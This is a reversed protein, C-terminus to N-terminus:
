DKCISIFEALTTDKLKSRLIKRACKDALNQAKESDWVNLRFTSLQRKFIDIRERFPSVLSETVDQLWRNNILEIKQALSATLCAPKVFRNLDTLKGEFSKPVTGNLQNNAIAFHHICQYFRIFDGDEVNTCFQSWCFDESLKPNQRNSARKKTAWSM